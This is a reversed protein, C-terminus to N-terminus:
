FEWRLGIGLLCVPCFQAFFDKIEGWMRATWKRYFRKWSLVLAPSTSECRSFSLIFFCLCTLFDKPSARSPQLFQPFLLPFSLLSLYLCETWSLGDKIAWSRGPAMFYEKELRNLDSFPRTERRCKALRKWEAGTAGVAQLTLDCCRLRADSHRMEQRLYTTAATLGLGLCFLCLQDQIDPEM